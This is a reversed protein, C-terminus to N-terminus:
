ACENKIAWMQDAESWNTNQKEEINIKFLFLYEYLHLNYM